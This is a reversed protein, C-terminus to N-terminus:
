KGSSDGGSKNFKESVTSQVVPTTGCPGCHDENAWDVKTDQTRRCDQIRWRGLAMQPATQRMQNIWTKVPCPKSLHTRIMSFIQRM